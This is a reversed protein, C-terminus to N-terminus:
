VDFDFLPIKGLSNFILINLFGQIKGLATLINLFGQIKAAFLKLRFCAPLPTPPCRQYGYCLTVLNTKLFYGL